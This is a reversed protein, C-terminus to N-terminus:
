TRHQELEHRDPPRGAPALTDPDPRVPPEPAADRYSLLPTGATGPRKDRQIVAHVLPETQEHAVQWVLQAVRVPDLTAGYDLAPHPPLPPVALGGLEILTVRGDPSHELLEPLLNRTLASQAARLACYYAQHQRARWASVSGVTVLHVPHPSAALIRALLAAPGALSHRTLAEADAATLEAFPQQLFRGAVWFVVAPGPLAPDASWPQGADALDVHRLEAGPPSGACDDTSGFRVAHVGKRLALATLARGLGAAEGIVAAVRPAATHDATTAAATASM